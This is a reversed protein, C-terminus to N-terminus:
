PAHAHEPPQETFTPATHVVVSWHQAILPVGATHTANGPAPCIQLARHVALVSQAVPQQAISASPVRAQVTARHHEVGPDHVAATPAAQLLSLWHQGSVPLPYADAQEVPLLPM